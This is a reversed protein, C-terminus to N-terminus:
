ELADGVLCAPVNVGTDSSPNARPRAASAVCRDSVPWVNAPGSTAPTVDGCAGGDRHRYANAVLADPDMGSMVASAIGAVWLFGV